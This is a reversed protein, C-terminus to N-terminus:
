SCSPMTDASDLGCDVGIGKSHHLYFSDVLLLSRATTYFDCDYDYDIFVCFGFLCVRQMCQISMCDGYVCAAMVM